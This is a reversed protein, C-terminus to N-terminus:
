HMKPAEDTPYHWQLSLHRMPVSTTKSCLTCLACHVLLVNWQSTEFCIWREKDGSNYLHMEPVQTMQLVNDANQICIFVDIVNCNQSFSCVSPYSCYSCWRMSHRTGGTDTATATPVALCVTLQCDEDETSYVWAAAAAASSQSHLACGFGRQWYDCQNSELTPWWQNFLSLSLPLCVHAPRVPVSCFPRRNPIQKNKGLVRVVLM